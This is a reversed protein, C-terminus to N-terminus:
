ATMFSVAFALRSMGTIGQSYIQLAGSTTLCINIPTTGYFGAFYMKEQSRFGEPITAFSYYQPIDAIPNGEFQVTVVHGEKRVNFKVLTTDFYTSLPTEKSPSGTLVISGMDQDKRLIHSTPSNNTYICPYNALNPNDPDTIYEVSIRKCTEDIIVNTRQLPESTSIPMNLDFYSDRSNYFSIGIGDMDAKDGGSYAIGCNNIYAEMAISRCDIVKVGHYSASQIDLNAFTEGRSDYLVLTSESPTSISTKSQGCPGEIKFNVYKNSGSGQCIMGADKSDTIYFNSFENDTSMNLVGIRCHRIFFNNCHYLWNWAYESDGSVHPLALGINGCEYIGINEYTSYNSFMPTHESTNHIVLAADYTGYDGVTQHDRNGYLSLNEIRSEYANTMTIIRKVTANNRLRIRTLGQGSGILHTRPGYVLNEVNYVKAGLFAIKGDLQQFAATDDTVGDGKAGFMEPTVYEKISKLKLADSFKEETLSGDQVTTTAEPHADLWETVAQATQADTPTGVQAWEQGTGENTARLIYGPTATKNYNLANKLEDDAAERANKEALIEDSASDLASELSIIRMRNQFMPNQGANIGYIIYTDNIRSPYGLVRFYEANNPVVVTVEVYDTGLNARRELQVGDKDFFVIVARNQQSSVGCYTFTDGSTCPISNSMKWYETTVFSGDSQNYYGNYWKLGVLSGTAKLANELENDATERATAETAIAQDVEDQSVAGINIRATTKQTSNLSQSTDYRVSNNVISEAVNEAIETISDIDSGDIIDDASIARGVRLTVVSTKWVPHSSSSNNRGEITCFSSGHLVTAFSGVNWDIYVASDDSTASSLNVFGQELTANKINVGWTLNALDVGGSYRPAVFRIVYTNNDGEILPIEQCLQSPDKSLIITKDAM